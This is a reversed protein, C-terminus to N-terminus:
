MPDYDIQKGLGRIMARQGDIRIFFGRSECIRRGDLWAMRLRLRLIQQVSRQWADDPGPIALAAERDFLQRLPAFQPTPQFGYVAWPFDQKVFRLLGLPHRNLYLLRYHVVPHALYRLM